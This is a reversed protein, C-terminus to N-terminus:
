LAPRRSPTLMVSCPPVYVAPERGFSRLCTEGIVALRPLPEHSLEVDIAPDPVHLHLGVRRQQPGNALLHAQGAGLIATTDRLAAGTRHVEVAGQHAGAGDRNSAHFGGVLDDGDFAQRGGARMRHLLGPRREVDGLAAIALGPLDHGRRGQELSVRLRGILIDVVCHRVDAPAAGILADPSGHVDRSTPPSSIFAVLALMAFRERRVKMTPVAAAAPPRAIPIRRGDPIPDASAWLAALAPVSTWAQTTTLGSSLQTIRMARESIPWPVSVPRAWSTASSSSHSQFFTAVSDIVGPWFRARWRTQPSIDVPPLRPM